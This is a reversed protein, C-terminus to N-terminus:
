IPHPGLNLPGIFLDLLEVSFDLSKKRGVRMTENGLRIILGLYNLERQLTCHGWKTERDKHALDNMIQTGRDVMEQPLQDNRISLARAVAMLARDTVVSRFISRGHLASFYLTDGSAALCQDLPQLWVMSNIVSAVGKPEKVVEVNPVLMAEQREHNTARCNRPDRHCRILTPKITDATTTPNLSHSPTPHCFLCRNAGDLEGGRYRIHVHITIQLDIYREAIRPSKFIFRDNWSQRFKRIRNAADDVHETVLEGGLTM